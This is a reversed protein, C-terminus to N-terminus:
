EVPNAPSAIEPLSKDRRMSNRYYKIKLTDSPLRGNISNPPLKRDHILLELFSTSVGWLHFFREEAKVELCGPMEPVLKFECDTTDWIQDPLDKHSVLYQSPKRSSYYLSCNSITNSCGSFTLIDQVRYWCYDIDEKPEGEFGFWSWNLSFPSEEM